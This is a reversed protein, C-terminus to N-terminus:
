GLLRRRPAWDWKRSDRPVGVEGEQRDVTSDVVFEDGPGDADGGFGVEVGESRVQAQKGEDDWSRCAGALDVDLQVLGGDISRLVARPQPVIISGLERSGHRLQLDHPNTDKRRRSSRRDVIGQRNSLQVDDALLDNTSM